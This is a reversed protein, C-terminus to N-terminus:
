QQVPVDDPGVAVVTLSAVLNELDRRSRERDGRVLFSLVLGNLGGVVLRAVEEVPILLDRGSREVLVAHLVVLLNLDITHLNVTTISEIM